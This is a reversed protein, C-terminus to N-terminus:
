ALLDDEAQSTLGPRDRVPGGAALSVNRTHQKRDALDRAHRTEIAAEVLEESQANILGGSRTVMQCDCSVAFSKGGTHAIVPCGASVQRLNLNEVAGGHAKRSPTM